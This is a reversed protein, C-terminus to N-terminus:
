QVPHGRMGRYPRFTCGPGTPVYIVDVERMGAEAFVPVERHTELFYLLHPPAVVPRDNEWVYRGNAIVIPESAIFWGATQAYPPSTAPYVVSFTRGDLLTDGTVQDLTATVNKLMTGEVVCVSITDPREMGEGAASVVATSTADTRVRSYTCAALHLFLGCAVIARHPLRTRRTHM